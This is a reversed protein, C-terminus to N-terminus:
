VLTRCVSGVPNFGSKFYHIVLCRFLLSIIIHVPVSGPASIYDCSICHNPLYLKGAVECDLTLIQHSLVGLEWLPKTFKTFSPLYLM